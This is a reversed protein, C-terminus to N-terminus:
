ADDKETHCKFCGGNDTGSGADMNYEWRLLDAYDSGHARHCSICTVITDDAFTVADVVTTYNVSAVPADVDYTPGYSRYESGPDTNGMDYDTPHRVWNGWSVGDDIGGTATDGGANDSSHFFGHCQACLYSITNDGSSVYTDDTRDVGKYQNHASSTPKYEWRGGTAGSTNWELGVIGLLFRYSRAVTGGGVPPTDDGHHGGSIAAFLDLENHDGHCGYTGACTLRQGTWSAPLGLSQGLTSDYGPPDYGLVSDQSTSIGDVNHAKADGAQTGEAQKMYYFTGGATTDGTTGTAGYNPNDTQHVYPINNSGDNQVGSAAQHCGLCGTSAALLAVNPTQGAVWGNNTWDTPAPTQSSHMTHCESCVGRVRAMAPNSFAAMIAIAAVLVILVMMREKM